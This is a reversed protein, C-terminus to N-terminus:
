ISTSGWSTTPRSRWRRPTTTRRSKRSRRSGTRISRQSFPPRATTEYAEAHRHGYTILGYAQVGGFLDPIITNGAEISLTERTEEPTGLIKNSNAPFGGAAARADTAPVVFHDTHFMQGGIHVYGDTGFCAGKDTDLQYPWGDGNYANAGTYASAHGSANKKM